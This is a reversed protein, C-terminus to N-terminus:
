LEEVLEKAWQDLYGIQSLLTTVTYRNRIEFGYRIAAEIWDKNLENIDKRELIGVKLLLDPIKTLNHYVQDIMAKIEKEKNELQGIDLRDKAWRATLLKLIKPANEQYGKNIRNIREEKNYDISLDTFDLKYLRSYFASSFYTGLAVKIGHTPVKVNHLASYMDLFHSIHHESGSAPRSSGVMLMALGSSILGKTLTAISEETRDQLKGGIQIINELEEEVLNVARSCYYENFLIRSLKWDLLSTMKGLLDGFGSQIMEWPAEKLIDLDAIIAEPPTTVYTKKVGDITLSSVSSAYGDMSPATAVVTYPRDLKASVFATLDNIVGSGCAIIYGQNDIKELIAFLAKPDPIVHDKGGERLTIIEVEYDSAELIDVLQNGAVAFTNQDGVLFIKDEDTLKDILNPVKKLANDEIIVEKIPVKHERGCDCKFKKNLYNDM